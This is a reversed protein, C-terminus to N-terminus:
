DESARQYPAASAMPMVISSIAAHGARISATVFSFMLLAARKSSRLRATVPNRKGAICSAPAHARKFWGFSLARTGALHLQDLGFAPNLGPQHFIVRHRDDRQIKREVAARQLILWAPAACGGHKGGQQIFARTIEIRLCKVFREIIFGNFDTKRCVPIHQGPM